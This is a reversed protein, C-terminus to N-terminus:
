GIQHTFGALLRDRMVFGMNKLFILLNASVQQFSGTVSDEITDTVMETGTVNAYVQVVKTKGCDSPGCLLVPKRQKSCEALDKIMPVQSQLLLPANNVPNHGFKQVDESIKDIKLDNLYLAEDNWYVSVTSSTKVLTEIDECAFAEAFSDRIFKKDTDCRMRNSYVLQMKEFLTQEFTSQTEPIEPCAAILFECWRMMDRLNAEFPGGKYGFEFKSFGKDLRESFNVMKEAFDHGFRVQAAQFYTGYKSKLIFLLDEHELKKLYVKTFRNLFSQPLGKRGGGQKLPNQTAFIRTRHGLKFMKNLEPIFVEGRHDLIGNLGELVSQPALNLEDLLIWTNASKLAALLPGDRWTFAGLQRDPSENEKDDGMLTLDESPLDTGFLDALDTQECLNIRVVNYGITRALNEVLSTKGVGPSGELLVAKDLTFASLLRFLNQCTTPATFHFDPCDVATDPNIQIYFPAIGFMKQDRIEPTSTHPALKPGFDPKLLSDLLDLSTKKFKEIEDPEYPLMELADLFITHLGLTLGESISLTGSPAVNKGLYLCWALIDRISFVIKEVTKKLHLSVDIVIEALNEVMEPRVNLSKKLSHAAISVLDETRQAPRCWIETFRNRLAPSLEKKGFDGGPNMTALFQFGGTATIEYSKSSIDETTAKEALLLKREPELLCNLRELVSDEALSIEDALFISGEQM